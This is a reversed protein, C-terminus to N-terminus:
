FDRLVLPTLPNIGPPSVDDFVVKKKKSPDNKGIQSKDDDDGKQDRTSLKTEFIKHEELDVKEVHKYEGLPDALIVKSFESEERSRKIMEKDYFNYMKKRYNEDNNKMM